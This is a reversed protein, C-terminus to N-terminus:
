TFTGKPPNVISELSKGTIHICGNILIKRILKLHKSNSIAILDKDNVDSNRFDM